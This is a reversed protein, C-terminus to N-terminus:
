DIQTTSIIQWRGDRKVFLHVWRWEQEYDSERGARAETMRGTVAAVEDGYFQVRLDDSVYRVDRDWTLMAAIAQARTLTEGDSYTLLFSEAETREFFGADHRTQAIDYQRIIERIEQEALQRAADAALRSVSAPPAKPARPPRPTHWLHAASLGTSCTVLMVAAHLILRGM